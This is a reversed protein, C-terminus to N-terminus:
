RYHIGAFDAASDPLTHPSLISSPFRESLSKKIHGLGGLPPLTHDQVHNWLGLELEILMPSSEKGWEVIELPFCQRRDPRRHLNGLQRLDGHLAAGPM